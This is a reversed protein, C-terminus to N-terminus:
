CIESLSYFPKLCLFHEPACAPASNLLMAVESPQHYKKCLLRGGVALGTFFITEFAVAGATKKVEETNIHVGDDEKVFYKDSLKKIGKM